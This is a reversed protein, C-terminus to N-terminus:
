RGGDIIRGKGLAYYGKFFSFVIDLLLFVFYAIYIGRYYQANIINDNTFDPGFGIALSLQLQIGYFVLLFLLNWAFLIGSMPDVYIAWRKSVKNVPNELKYSERDLLRYVQEKTMPELDALSMAQDQRYNILETTPGASM